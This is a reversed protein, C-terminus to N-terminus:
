QAFKEAQLRLFEVFRLREFGLETGGRTKSWHEEADDVTFWRCGAKIWIIGDRKVAYFEYGDSSPGIRVIGRAGFLIAGSLDAGSLNAGSLNARSLGAGSLSARSLNAGSLNAGSLNARSLNAGSLNAGSLNAYDEITYGNIQM